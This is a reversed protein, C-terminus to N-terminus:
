TVSTGTKHLRIKSLASYKGKRLILQDQVAVRQRTITAASTKRFKFPAVRFLGTVGFCAYILRTALTVGRM